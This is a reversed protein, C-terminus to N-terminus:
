LSIDKKIKAEYALKVVVRAMPQCCAVFGLNQKGTLYNNDNAPQILPRHCFPCKQAEHKRHIFLFWWYRIKLWINKFLKKM